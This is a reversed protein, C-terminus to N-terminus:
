SEKEAIIFLDETKSPASSPSPMRRMDAISFGHRVLASVLEAEGHYDIYVKDGTSTSQFGSDEHKGEMTSLYFVGGSTLVNAADAIFQVVEERSLYPFGFACVIGDFTGLGSLKRCDHVAFRAGPVAERALEIMSPALDVGVLELDPRRQLLYRAVNGPGCAADLVRAGKKTLLECFRDYTEDYMTLHMYKAQYLRAHKNFTDSSLESNDM